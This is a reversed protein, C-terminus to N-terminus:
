KHECLYHAVFDYKDRSQKGCTNCCRIDSKDHMSRHLHYMAPDQFIVCCYDCRLVADRAMLHAILDETSFDILCIRKNTHCYASSSAVLGSPSVDLGSSSMTWSISKKPNRTKASGGANKLSLKRQQHAQSQSSRSGLLTVQESTSNNSESTVSAMDVEDQMLMGGQPESSSVDCVSAGDESCKFEAVPEDIQEGESKPVSIGSICMRLDGDLDGRESTRTSSMRQSRKLASTEGNDCYFGQDDAPEAKICLGTVVDAHIRERIGDSDDEDEMHSLDSDSQRVRTVFAPKRKRSVGNEKTHQDRQGTSNSGEDGDDNESKIAAATKKLEREAAAIKSKSLLAEHLVHEELHQELRPKRSFGMNCISCLYAKEGTHIRKHNKLHSSQAFRKHCISCAYPKEGTHTRKHIILHAKQTFRKNCITCAYPREGTHTRHHDILSANSALQKGCTHCEITGDDSNLSFHQDM